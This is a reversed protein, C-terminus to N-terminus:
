PGKKNLKHMAKKSRAKYYDNNIILDAQAQKLILHKRLRKLVPVVKKRSTIRWVYVIKHNKKARARVTVSGGLKEQMEMLISKDTNVVCIVPCGSDGSYYFGIHGEGDVFGAMYRIDLKM